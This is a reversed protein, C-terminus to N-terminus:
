DKRSEPGSRRRGRHNGRRANSMRPSAESIAALAEDQGKNEEEVRSEEEIEKFYEELEQEEEYNLLGTDSYGEDCDEAQTLGEQAANNVEGSPAV